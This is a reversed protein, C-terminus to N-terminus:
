NRSFNDSYTEIGLTCEDNHIHVCEQFQNMKNGCESSHIHMCLDMQITGILALGLTIMINILKKGMKMEEVNIRMITM